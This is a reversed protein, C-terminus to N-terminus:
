RRAPAVGERRARMAGGMRELEADGLLRSAMPLLESEERAIHSDYGGALSEVDAAELMAAEGQAIRELTGRLSRWRRELERHEATLACTMERICVPDSGAMSDILAPFLDLDEDAHIDKAAGDFFRLASAAAMRAAADCGHALVHPALWRLMACQKVVRGHCASLRQLPREFGPMPAARAPSDDNARGPEPVSALVEHALPDPKMDEKRNRARSGDGHIPAVSWIYIM